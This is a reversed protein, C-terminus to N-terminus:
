IWGQRMLIPRLRITLRAAVLAVLIDKPIEVTLSSLVLVSMPVETNIYYNLLSWRYVLGLLYIPALSLVAGLAVSRYDGKSNEMWRGALFAALLFGLLYGFSPKLLYGLGGGGAFVPLGSLGLILYIGMAWSGRRSGLLLGSMLVFLTQLTIFSFYPVPIRILAGLATLAAFLASLILDRTRMHNVSTSCGTRAM